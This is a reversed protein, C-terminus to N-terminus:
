ARAVPTFGLGDHAHQLADWLHGARSAVIELPGAAALVGLGLDLEGEGQALRQVAVARLADLEADDPASGLHEIQRSGRRSSWVVQV